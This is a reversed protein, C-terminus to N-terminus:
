CYWIKFILDVSCFLNNCIYKYSLDILYIFNINDWQSKTQKVFYCNNVALKQGHECFLRYNIWNWIDKMCFKVVRHAHLYSYIHDSRCIINKKNPLYYDKFEKVLFNSVPKEKALQALQERSSILRLRWSEGVVSMKSTYAM